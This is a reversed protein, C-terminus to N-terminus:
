TKPQKEHKQKPLASLLRKANQAFVDTLKNQNPVTQNQIM